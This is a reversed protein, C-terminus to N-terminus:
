RFAPENALQKFMELGYESIAVNLHYTILRVNGKTYGLAPIIRDISPANPNVQGPKNYSNFDFVRGTVQCKGTYLEMMYDLDIDFNVGQKNARFKAAAILKRIRWKPKLMNNRFEAGRACKRCRFAKNSFTTFVDLCDSCEQTREKNIRTRTM